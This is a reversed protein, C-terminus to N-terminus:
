IEFIEVVMNLDLFKLRYNDGVCWIIKSLRSLPSDSINEQAEEEEM